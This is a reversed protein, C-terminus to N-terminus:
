KANFPLSWLFDTRLTGKAYAPDGSLDPAGRHIPLFNIFDGQRYGARHHCNMCNSVVGDRFHAELWPNFTIHPSGDAEQPTVEDYSAEMLYNRWVGKVNATRNAAYSGDDPRDHWWFTAWVWDDIEKTTLHTGLFVVYDGAQLPRGLVDNVFSALRGNAMANKATTADLKVYYFKDLGVLHSNPWSKPNTVPFNVTATANPPLGTHKPDIAVVRKWTTYPNGSPIQPNDKPDWIPMPTVANGAVPWWITKLSIANVPFPPVTTNNPIHPDAAGSTQLGNLTSQLYLKNDRIHKYNDYDFMVESILSTGAAQPAPHGPLGLTQRPPRFRFVVRHPGIAQAVAGTQFAEDESYWTAFVPYKGDPTTSTMGAWVNWVHTRQAAVNKDARYKELTAKAAPFDYGAPIDYIGNPPSPQQAAVSDALALAGLGALAMMSKNM